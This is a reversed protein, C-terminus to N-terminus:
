CMSDIYKVLEASWHRRCQKVGLVDVRWEAGWEGNVMSRLTESLGYESSHQNLDLPPKLATKQLEENKCHGDRCVGDVM